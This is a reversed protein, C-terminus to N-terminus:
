TFRQDTISHTRVHFSTLPRATHLSYRETYTYLNARVHTNRSYIINVMMRYVTRHWNFGAVTVFSRKSRDTSINVWFVMMINKWHNEYLMCHIWDYYVTKECISFFIKKVRNYITHTPICRCYVDHVECAAAVKICLAYWNHSHPGPQWQLEFCFLISEAPSIIITIYTYVHLHM